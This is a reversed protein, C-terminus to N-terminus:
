QIDNLMQGFGSVPIKFTFPRGISATLTINASKAARAAQLFVDDMVAGATCTKPECKTINLRHTPGKDFQIGVGPAIMVGSPVELNTVFVGEKNHGVVWLFVREHRKVDDVELMGVCLSKKTEATAGNRCQTKWNGRRAALFWQASSDESPRAPADSQQNQPAPTVMQAANTAPSPAQRWATVAYYIGAVVLFCIVIGATVGGAILLWQNRIAALLPTNAPIASALLDAQVAAPAPFDAPALQIGQEEALELLIPQWKAPITGIKKWYAVMTPAKGILTALADSGGFKEIVQEAANM